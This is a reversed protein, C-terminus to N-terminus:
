IGDYVDDYIGIEYLHWAAAYDQLKFFSKKGPVTVYVTFHFLRQKKKDRSTNKQGGLTGPLCCNCAQYRKM